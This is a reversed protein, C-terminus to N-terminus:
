NRKDVLQKKSARFIVSFIARSFAKSRWFFFGPNLALRGEFLQTWIVFNFAVNSGNTAVSVVVFVVESMEGRLRSNRSLAQMSICFISTLVELISWIARWYLRFKLRNSRTTKVGETVVNSLPSFSEFYDDWIWAVLVSTIAKEPREPDISSSKKVSLWSQFITRWVLFWFAAWACFCTM